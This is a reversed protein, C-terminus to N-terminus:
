TLGRMFDLYRNSLQNVNLDNILYDDVKNRYELYELLNLKCAMSIAESLMYPDDCGVQFKPDIDCIPNSVEPAALVVPPGSVLYSVIKNSNIGCSYSILNSVSALLVTASEQITGVMEPDIVGELYVSSIKKEFIYKRVEKLGVGDGYLHFNYCEPYREELIEAAKVINLIDHDIGFSGVYVIRKINSNNAITFNKIFSKSKEVWELKAANPIYVNPPPKQVTLEVYRIGYKVTTVIGDSYRYSIKELMKLLKYIASSKKMIGIDLFCDPWLDRLELILISPRKFIRKFLWISIGSLLPVNSFILYKSEVYIFEILTFIITSYLASLFRMVGNGNYPITNVYFINVGAIEANSWFKGKGSHQKIKLLHSFNNTIYTVEHGKRAFEIAYEFTRRSSGYPSDYYQLFSIKM